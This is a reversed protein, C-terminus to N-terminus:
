EAKPGKKRARIAFSSFGPIQQVYRTVAREEHSPGKVPSRSFGSQQFTKRPPLGAPRIRGAAEGGKFADSSSAGMLWGSRPICIALVQFHNVPQFGFDQILDGVQELSKMVGILM